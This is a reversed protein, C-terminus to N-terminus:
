AATLFNFSLLRHSQSVGGTSATFGVFAEGSLLDLQSGLDVDIEIFPTTFDNLYVRLIGPVYEVRVYIIEDTILQPAVVMTIRTADSSSNLGDDIGHVAVHPGTEVYATNVWTDFEIVLSNEILSYGVGDGASGIADTGEPSNQIVFALGDARPLTRSTTQFAFTASFGNAVEVQEPTWAAGRQWLSDPTLLIGFETIAADGVTSLTALDVEPQSPIVELTTSATSSLGNSDTVTLSVDHLGTRIPTFVPEPGFLDPVSDSDLDWAHDDIHGDGPASRSGDLIVAEGETFVYPGGTNAVPADAPIVNVRFSMSASRVANMANVEVDYIGSDLQRPAIVFGPGEPHDLDLSLFDPLGIGKVSFTEIQGESGPGFFFVGSHNGSMPATTRATLIETADGFLSIESGVVTMRLNLTGRGDWPDRKRALVQFVGDIQQGILADGEGVWGMIWNRDDMSGDHRAVVGYRGPRAVVDVSVEVDSFGTEIVYRQDGGDGAPLMTLSGTSVTASAGSRVRKWETSLPSLEPRHEELIVAGVNEFFSDFVVNGPEFGDSQKLAAAILELELDEASNINLPVFTSEGVKIEIDEVQEISIAPSVAVEPLLVTFDDFREENSGRQFLGAWTSGPLADSSFEFKTVGDLKLIARDGDVKVNMTRRDGPNWDFNSTTDIQFYVGGIMQGVELTESTRFFVFGNRGADDEGTARGGFMVGVKGGDWEVVSELDYEDVGTDIVALRDFGGPGFAGTQDSVQSQWIQWFGSEISWGKQSPDIEPVRTALPTFDPSDFSDFMWASGPVETVAPPSPQGASIRGEPRLVDQSTRVTFSDFRNGEDLRVFLGANNSTAPPFGLALLVTESDDLYIRVQDANRQVRLNRSQGSDWNARQRGRERFVGGDVRGAVLFNGDWFAISYHSRDLVDWALGATGGIWTIEASIEQDHDGESPIIAIQDAFAELTDPASLVAMGSDLVWEGRVSQWTGQATTETGDHLRLPTSDAGSFSDFVIPTDPVADSRRDLPENDSIVTFDRFSTSHLADFALGALTSNSFRSSEAQLSTIGNIDVQISDRRVQVTWRDPVGAAAEFSRQDLVKVQGNVVELLGARNSHHGAALFNERDLYRFVVGILCRDGAPTMSVALDYETLLTDVVAIGPDADLGVDRSALGDLTIRYDSGPSQVWGGGVSDIELSHLSLSTQPADLNFTDRVVYNSAASVSLATALLLSGALAAFAPTWVAQALGHRGHLYRHSGRM